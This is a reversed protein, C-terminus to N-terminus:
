EEACFYILVFAPVRVPDLLKWKSNVFEREEEMTWSRFHYMRCISKTIRILSCKPNQLLIKLLHNMTGKFFRLIDRFEKGDHIVPKTSLEIIDRLRLNSYRLQHQTTSRTRALIYIEPREVRGQVSIEKGQFLIKILTVVYFAHFLNSSPQIKVSKVFKFFSL